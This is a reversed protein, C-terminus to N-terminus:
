AFVKFYEAFFREMQVTKAVRDPQRGVTGQTFFTRGATNTDPDLPVRVTGDEYHCLDPQFIVAAALPDHFVIEGARQFWVDAMKVVVDLPSVSFRQRVQAAALKCKTTVDLGLSVHPARPTSYVMTAAPSDVLINWERDQPAAYFIGAMSVIQKLLLPVEPDLAFLLAINSLPGITLLTIAGPYARITRRLFDVATNAPWDRRHRMAEIAAYQPVEPQGPGPVLPASRGAHIPIDRRGAAACVVEACACRKAVDGTVTTIGLLRCRPQRLLYALAVADDIDSGIDTDLLIPM